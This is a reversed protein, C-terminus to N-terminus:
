TICFRFLTLLDGDGNRGIGTTPQLPEKGLTHGNELVLHVIGCTAAGIGKRHSGIVDRELRLEDYGDGSSSLHVADGIRISLEMQHVIDLQFFPTTLDPKIGQEVTMAMGDGVTARLTEEQGNVIRSGDTMQFDLCIHFAIARDEASQGNVVVTDDLVTLHATRHLVRPFVGIDSTNGSNVLRIVAVLADDGAAMHEAIDDTGRRETNGTLAWFGGHGVIHEIAAQGATGVSM